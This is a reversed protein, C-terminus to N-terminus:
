QPMIKCACPFHRAVMKTTTSASISANTSTNTSIGININTNVVGTGVVGMSAVGMCTVSNNKAKKVKSCLHKKKKKTQTIIQHL